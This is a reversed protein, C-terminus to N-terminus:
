VSSFFLLVLQMNKIYRDIVENSKLAAYYVKNQQWKIKSHKRFIYLSVTLQFYPFLTFFTATIKKM